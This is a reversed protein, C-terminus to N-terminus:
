PPMQPDQSRGGFAGQVACVVEAVARGGALKAQPQWGTGMIIAARLTGPYRILYSRALFSGMSHGMLCLPVGSFERRLQEHLLQIDAVVTEWPTGDGFYVPTGGEPLSGGHGLHDHGVVALGQENLYRAFGDYRGIHEAVGHSIQLVARPTGEPLWQMAHLRTKGDSSLFTFETLNTM